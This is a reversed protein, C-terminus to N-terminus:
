HTAERDEEVTTPDSTQSTKIRAEEQPKEGRAETETAKMIEKPAKLTTTTPFASM